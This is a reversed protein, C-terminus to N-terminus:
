VDSNLGLSEMGPEDDDYEEESAQEGNRKELFIMDKTQSEIDVSEMSEHHNEM